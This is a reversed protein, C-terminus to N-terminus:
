LIENDAFSYYSESTIIIHDLLRMSFLESASKIKKTIKRDLQSASLTGSPHNHCVIVLSTSNTKIALQFIEKINVVVGTTDGKGIESFCLIRNSNNLLIVWFYEKLDLTNIDIVERLFSNIDNSCTILKMTNLLPRKYIVAVEHIKHKMSNLKLTQKHNTHVKLYEITSTM